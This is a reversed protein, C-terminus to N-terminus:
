EESKNLMVPEVRAEHVNTSNNRSKTERTLNPIIQKIKIDNATPTSAGREEELIESFLISQSHISEGLNLALMGFKKLPTESL